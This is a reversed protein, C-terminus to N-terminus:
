NRENRRSPLSGARTISSEYMLIKMIVRPKGARAKQRARPLLEAATRFDSINGLFFTELVPFILASFEEQPM